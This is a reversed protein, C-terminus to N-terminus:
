AATEIKNEAQRNFRWIAFAFALMLVGGLLVSLPSAGLREFWQTYFHIAGFVAAVNVVWRRNARVGWVGVAILALAWGVGFVWAPIAVPLRAFEPAKSDMMRHLLLLRDGWLSGIWFGFNVMLVATRAANIAIREFNASVRQSIMYAALALGSFLVVTIFPEYISLAYTAHWYDAKAGLCAGLALVSAAILLSSRALLAAGALLATVILMAALSGQGFVLVTGCFTLAGLITCIQALLEWQRVRYLTLATGFAFILLGLVFGTTVNPILAGAGGAVAVVGFGVLINIGLSGTDQAALGRLREAEAATLKGDEVLKSLDLTIKM